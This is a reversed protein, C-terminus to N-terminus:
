RRVERAGVEKSKMAESVTKGVLRHHHESPLKNLYQELEGINRASFLDKVDEEHEKNAEDEFMAQPPRDGSNDKSGVKSSGDAEVEEMSPKLRALLALNPAQDKNRAGGRKSRTRNNRPVGQDGTETLPNQQKGRDPVSNLKAAFREESTMKSSPTSFTGMTSGSSTRPKSQRVTLVHPQNGESGIIGLPIDPKETCIALFQLLFERDYRFKGKESKVNLEPKPGMVGEPYSIQSLDEIVRATALCSVVNLALLNDQHNRFVPILGSSPTPFATSPDPPLPDLNRQPTISLSPPSKQSFKSTLKKVKRSPTPSLSLIDVKSTTSGTDPSSPVVLKATAPSIFTPLPPNSTSSSQNLSSSRAQQNWLSPLPMGGCSEVLVPEFSKIDETKASSANAPYTPLM